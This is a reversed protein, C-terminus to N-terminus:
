ESFEVSFLFLYRKEKELTTKILEKKEITYNKIEKAIDEEQVGRRQLYSRVYENNEAKEQSECYLAYVGIRQLLTSEFLSMQFNLQKSKLLIIRINGYITLLSNALTFMNDAGIFIEKNKNKLTLIEIWEIFRKTVHLSRKNEGIYKKHGAVLIITFFAYTEYFHTLVKLYEQEGYQLIDFRSRIAVTYFLKKENKYTIQLWDTIEELEQKTLYKEDGEYDISVSNYKLFLTKLYSVLDNTRLVSLKVVFIYKKDQNAGTTQDISIKQNNKTHNRM